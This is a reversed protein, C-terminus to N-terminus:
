STVFQRHTIAGNLVYWQFYGDRGNYSGYARYEDMGRCPGYYSAYNDVISPFSHHTDSMDWRKWEASGSYSDPLCSNHVLLGIDGVFYTHFGEVEFNYVTIPTDLHKHAVSLITLTTGDLLLLSDGPRLDKAKVWGIGLGTTNARLENCDPVYFPHEPTAEIAESGTNIVILETTQNQFTQVVKCLETEGTEPNHAWVYDGVQIEEIAIDGKETKIITGAVFCLAASLTEQYHKQKQTANGVYAKASERAKMEAQGCRIYQSIEEGSWDPHAQLVSTWKWPDQM